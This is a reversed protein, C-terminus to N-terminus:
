FWRARTTGSFSGSRITCSPPNTPDLRNEGVQTSITLVTIGEHRLGEVDLDPVMRTVLLGPSSSSVLGHFLEHAGESKKDEILILRGKMEDVQRTDTHFVTEKKPKIDATFTRYRMVAYAFALILFLVGPSYTNPVAAGGVLLVSIVIAYIYPFAIGFSLITAQRRVVKDNTSLCTVTLMYIGALAFSVMVVMWIYFGESMPFGWGFDYQTVTNPAYAGIFAALLSIVVYERRSRSFWGAFREYPLLSALYVISAFALVIVFLGIRGWLLASGADPATMFAYDIPGYAFFFFMVILFMRSSPLFPNKRYVYLGVLLGVLGVVIPIALVAQFEYSM